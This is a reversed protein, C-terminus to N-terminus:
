TMYTFSLVFTNPYLAFTATGLLAAVVSAGLARLGGFMALTGVLGVVLTSLRLTTFSFGGLWAFLTGWWLHVPPFTWSWPSVHFGQGHLIQEVSIAYCWDDL